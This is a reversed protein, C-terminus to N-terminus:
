AGGDRVQECQTRLYEVEGQRKAAQAKKWQWGVGREGEEEDFGGSQDATGDGGRKERMRVSGEEVEDMMKSSRGIGHGEEREPGEMLATSGTGEVVDACLGVRSKATGVALARERSRGSGTGHCKSGTKRNQGLDGKSSQQWM